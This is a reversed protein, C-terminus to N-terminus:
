HLNRQSIFFRLKGSPTEEQREQGGSIGGTPPHWGGCRGARVKTSDICSHLLGIQTGVGWPRLHRRMGGRSAGSPGTNQTAIPAINEEDWPDVKTQPALALSLVVYKIREITNKQLDVGTCVSLLLWKGVAKDFEGLIHMWNRDWHPGGLANINGEDGQFHSTNLPKGLRKQSERFFAKTNRLAEKNVEWSAQSETGLAAM